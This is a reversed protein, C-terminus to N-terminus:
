KIIEQKIFIEYIYDVNYNLEDKGLPNSLAFIFYHANSKQCNEYDNDNNKNLNNFLTKKGKEKYEYSSINVRRYKSFFISLFICM